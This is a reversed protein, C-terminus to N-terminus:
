RFGAYVMVERPNYCMVPIKYPNQIISQEKVGMLFKSLTLNRQLQIIVIDANVSNSFENIETAFDVQGKGEVIEFNIHKSEFMMRAFNINNVVHKKFAHDNTHVKFLYLKSNDYFRHLTLLHNVLEKNEPRYDIPYVVTKVEEKRPYDHVIIFPSKSGRMIKVARSGTYKQIGKVGDTKMIVIATDPLSAIESISTLIDGTQVLATTHVGSLRQSEEAVANLKEHYLSEEKDNKIIHLLSIHLNRVKAHRIAHQLAFDAAPTFDWPVLINKGTSEM